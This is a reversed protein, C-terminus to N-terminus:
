SLIRNMENFALETERFVRMYSASDLGVGHWAVISVPPVLEDEAKAFDLGHVIANAVHILSAISSNGMADPEEHGAIANQINESFHWHQALVHGITAHDLGLVTREADLLYCDHAARYALAVEYRHTFHTVLVLRGIDHLLGATFAIDQNLRLHRALVKACVATALTHRWFVKYEFNKCPTEPFCSSLAATTILNRVGRVGLLSIAQQISCVKTQSGYLSSNAFRLTKATLAQDKAIKQALISIDIDENDISNLVDMAVAPLTPLDRIQEVVEDLHIQKDLYSTDHTTM